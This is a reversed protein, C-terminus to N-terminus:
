GGESEIWIHHDQTKHTMLNESGSLTLCCNWSLADPPPFVCVTERIALHITEYYVHMELTRLIMGGWSQVFSVEKSM